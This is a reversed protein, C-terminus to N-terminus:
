TLEYIKKFNITPFYFLSFGFMVSPPKARRSINTGFQHVIVSPQVYAFEILTTVPYIYKGCRSTWGKKHLVIVHVGHSHVRCTLPLAHLTPVQKRVRLWQGPFWEPPSPPCPSPLKSFLPIAINLKVSKCSFRLPGKPSSRIEYHCYYHFGQFYHPSGLGLECHVLLSPWPLPFLLTSWLCSIGTQPEWEVQTHAM